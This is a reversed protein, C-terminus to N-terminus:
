VFAAMNSDKARTLCMNNTAHPPSVVRPGLEDFVRAVQVVFQLTPGVGEQDWLSLSRVPQQESDWVRAAHFGPHALPAATSSASSSVSGGAPPAWMGTQSGAQGGEGARSM